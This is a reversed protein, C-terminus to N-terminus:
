ILFQKELITGNTLYHPFINYLRLPWLKFYPAHAKCELYRLSGVCVCVSLIHLVYQKELAVITAHVRRMTINCTCQRDKKDVSLLSARTKFPSLRADIQPVATFKSIEFIRHAWM